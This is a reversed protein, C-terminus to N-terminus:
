YEGHYLYALRRNIKYEVAREFVGNTYLKVKYDGTLHTALPNNLSWNFNAYLTKEKEITISRHDLYKGNLYRVYEIKTGTKPNNLAITLYIIKENAFFQQTPMLPKGSIPDIEKAPVGQVIMGPIKSRPKPKTTNSAASSKNLNQKTTQISVKPFYNRFFLFGLFSGIFAALITLVVILVINKAQPSFTNEM